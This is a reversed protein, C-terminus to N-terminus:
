HRAAITFIMVGPKGVSDGYQAQAMKPSKLGQRLEGGCNGRVGRRGFRSVRGNGAKKIRNPHLSTEGGVREGSIARIQRRKRAPEGLAVDRYHFVRTRVEQAEDGPSDM